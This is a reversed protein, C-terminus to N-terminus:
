DRGWAGRPVSRLLGALGELSPLRFPRAKFWCAHNLAQTDIILAWKALSKYKVFTRANPSMLFKDILGDVHLRRLLAAM